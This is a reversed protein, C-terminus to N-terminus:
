KESDGMHKLELQIATSLGRYKRLIGVEDQFGM